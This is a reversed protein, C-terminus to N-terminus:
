LTVENIKFDPIIFEIDFKNFTFTIDFTKSENFAQNFSFSLAPIRSVFCDSATCKFMPIEASDKMILMIIFENISRNRKYYNRLVEYCYLYNLITNRLTIVITITDVISNIPATGPYHRNITTEITKGSSTNKGLNGMSDITLINLDIGPVDLNQIGEYFYGQFSKIPYNKYFLFKEYKSILAEPFFSDGFIIEFNSLIPNIM